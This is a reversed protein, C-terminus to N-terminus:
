SAAVANEYLARVKALEAAFADTSVGLGECVHNLDFYFREHAILGDRIDWVCSFPVEFKRKTAKVSGVDAQMTASVRGWGVVHEGHELLGDTEVSYDPFLNLFADLQSRTEEKGASTIQFPYTAIVIDETCAALAADADARSKAAAYAKVSELGSM